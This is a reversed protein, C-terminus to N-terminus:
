RASTTTSGAATGPLTTGSVTCGTLTLTAATTTSGAAAADASNGSVTCDTLTLTGSNDLGGGYCQGLGRHHDPGLAHGTVNTASSGSFVGVAKGGSVTVGATPGDIAEPGATETLALTGLSSSLTITQPTAFVTPDFQILSGDPNTNPTPRTSSM